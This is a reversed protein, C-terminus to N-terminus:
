QTSGTCASTHRKFADARPYTKGCKECLHPKGANHLSREHRYLDPLRRFGVGCERCVYPKILSHCRQHSKLNQIKSFTKGCDPHHCTFIESDASSSRTLTLESHSKVRKQTNLAEAFYYDSSSATQPQDSPYPTIPLPLDLFDLYDNSCENSKPADNSPVILKPIPLLTSPQLNLPSLLTLGALTPFDLGASFPLAPSLLSASNLQNFLHSHTLSDLASMPAQTTLPSILANFVPDATAQPQNWLSTNIQLTRKRNSM